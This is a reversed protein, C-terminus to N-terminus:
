IKTKKDPQGKPPLKESLANASKWAKAWQWITQNGSFTTRGVRIPEEKPKAFDIIVDVDAGKSVQYVVVLLQDNFISAKVMGESTINIGLKEVDAIRDLDGDIIAAYMKDFTNGHEDVLDMVRGLDGTEQALEMEAEIEQITRAEQYEEKDSESLYHFDGEGMRRKIDNFAENHEDVLDLIRDIDGTKQVEELETEIEHLTRKNM